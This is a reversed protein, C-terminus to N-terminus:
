VEEKDSLVEKLKSEGRLYTDLFEVLYHESYGSVASPRRPYPVELADGNDFLFITPVGELKFIEGMRENRDLDMSAFRVKGAYRRLLENYVDSLGQCLPCSRRTVKLLVPVPCDLVQSELDMIDVYVIM